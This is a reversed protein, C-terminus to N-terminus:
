KQERQDANYQQPVVKCCGLARFSAVYMEIHVATAKKKQQVYLHVTYAHLRYALFGWGLRLGGQMVVLYTCM